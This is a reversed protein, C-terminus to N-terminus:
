GAADIEVGLVGEPTYTGADVMLEGSTNDSADDVMTGPKIEVKVPFDENEPVIVLNYINDDDPDVTLTASEANSIVLDDKTFVNAGTMSLAESFEIVFILSGDTEPTEPATISTLTPADTDGLGPDVPGTKTKPELLVTIPAGVSTNGAEDSVTITIVVENADMPITVDQPTVLVAYQNNLRGTADGFGVYDKPEAEFKLTKIDLSDDQILADNNNSDLVGMSFVVYFPHILEQDVNASEGPRLEVSVDQVVPTTTDM